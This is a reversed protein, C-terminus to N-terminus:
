NLAPCGRRNAFAMRDPGGDNWGRVIIRRGNSQISDIRRFGEERAARMLERRGCGGDWDGRSRGWDQDQRNDWRPPPRYDQDDDYYQAMAASPLLQVTALGVLAICSFRTLRGFM